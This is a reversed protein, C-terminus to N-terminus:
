SILEIADVVSYWYEKPMPGGNYEPMVTRTKIKFIKNKFIAPSLAANRSPKQWGNAMCWTKYYKSGPKIRQNYPMNFLMSLVVGQYKGMAIKFVLVRKKNKCIFLDHTKICQAEYSGNKILPYDGAYTFKEERDM